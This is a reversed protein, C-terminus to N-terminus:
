SERFANGEKRPVLPEFGDGELLSDCAFRGWRNHVDDGAAVAPTRRYQSRRAQNASGAISLGRDGIGPEQEVRDRRQACRPASPM